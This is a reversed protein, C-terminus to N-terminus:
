THVPAQDGRKEKNVGKLINGDGQEGQNEYTVQVKGIASDSQATGQEIHGHQQNRQPQTLQRLSEAM